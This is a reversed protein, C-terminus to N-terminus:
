VSGPFYRSNKLDPCASAIVAQKESYERLTSSLALDRWGVIGSCIFCASCCSALSFVGLSCILSTDCSLYAGYIHAAWCERDAEHKENYYVQQGTSVRYLCLARLKEASTEMNHPYPMISNNLIVSTNNM